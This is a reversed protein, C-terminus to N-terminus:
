LGVVVEASGTPDAKIEIRFLHSNEDYSTLVGGTVVPSTPSFGFLTRSSEGPAFLVTARVVGDDKLTAIRKKGLTM